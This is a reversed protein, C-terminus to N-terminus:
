LLGVLNEKYYKFSVAVYKGHILVERNKSFANQLNVDTFQYKNIFKDTPLSLLKDLFAVTNKNASHYKGITFTTTLDSIKPSWTYDFGNFPFIIYAFGYFQAQALVSTCFISNSRIAIFGGDLLKQDIKTQVNIDTDRPLRDKPSKGIFYNKFGGPMSDIGRYLFKGTSLKLFQSCNVKIFNALDKNTKFKKDAIEILRM